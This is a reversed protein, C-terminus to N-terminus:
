YSRHRLEELAVPMRATAIPAPTPAASPSAASATVVRPRVQEVFSQPVLWVGKRVRVPADLKIPSGNVTVRSWNRTFTIIRGQSILRAEPSDPSAEVRAKLLTALRALEVYDRGEHSVAPLAAAWAPSAALLLVAVVLRARRMLPAM